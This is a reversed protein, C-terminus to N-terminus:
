SPRVAVPISTWGRATNNLLRTPEGTLEISKVRRAFTGLLVEAELRAIPAGVCQHIGRGLSVHGSASRSIDYKDADEGWREPDRNAAGIVSMIKQGECVPVGFLETDRNPSRYLHRVVPDFRLSEDFAFKALQPNEHLATWQEPNTILAHVTNALSHITTDIGAGLLSRVLNAADSESVLGEDAAKWVSAGFSTPSVNAKACSDDIWAKIEAIDGLEDLVRAARETRPGMSELLFTSYKLLNERGGGQIGMVADPIVQLPFREALEVKADFERMELLRDIVQDAAVQFAARLARTSRPSIVDALVARVETHVPPDNEQLVSPERYGEGEVIDTIGVGRTTGFTASDELIARVVEDRGTAIVDFGPVDVRALPGAERLRRQFPLPDLLVEDSYPEVDLSPIETTLM